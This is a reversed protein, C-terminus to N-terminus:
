ILHLQSTTLPQDSKLQNIYALVQDRAKDM